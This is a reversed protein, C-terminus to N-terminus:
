GGFGSAMQALANLNGVAGPTGEKMNLGAVNELNGGMTAMLQNFAPTDSLLENVEHGVGMERALLKIWGASSAAAAFTPSQGIIQTALLLDQVRDSKQMRTQTGIARAAYSPLMDGPQLVGREMPIPKGSTPDIKASDGLILFERPTSLWQKNHAMFGDALPELVQQEFLLAELVLRVAVAESRALDSRATSRGPARVGIVSEDLIGSVRQMYQWLLQTTEIGAQLGQLNPNGPMIMESPSGSIPVWRGPRLFLNRPDIGAARNFIFWPDISVDLADLVQNTFKNIGFQLKAAMEGRGPGFFYHPDPNLSAVVIPRKNLLYPFTKDRLLFKGNAVTIVRFDAKADGPLLEHPVHVGVGEIIEVPRGYKARLRATDDGSGYVGLGRMEKLSELAGQAGSSTNKLLRVELPDFIPERTEGERSLAEVQEIDLWYRYFFWQMDQEYKFGPQPYGDLNDRVVFDPGDFNVVDREVFTQVTTESLPAFEVSPTLIKGREYKWGHTAFSQGYLNANILMDLCKEVGRTDRFQGSFLADHKRAIAAENPDQGVGVFRIPQTQGFIMNMIRSAHSWVITYLLPVSLTNKHVHYQGTRIGRYLNYIKPCQKRYDWYHQESEARCQRVWACLATRRAAENAPNEIQSAYSM